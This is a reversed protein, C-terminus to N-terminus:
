RTGLVERYKTLVFWDREQARRSELIARLSDDLVTGCAAVAQIRVFNDPHAVSAMFEVRCRDKVDIDAQTTDLKAVLAGASRLAHGLAVPKLKPMAALVPELSPRGIAVLAAEAASRVTFYRDGLTRVLDPIAVPNKLKGCAEATVIRSLELKDRLLYLIRPVVLSDGIDGLSYVGRRPSIRKAELAVFISEVADFGDKGLKGLFYAANNRALYRDDRLAQFLYPKVSDPWAKVLVQIAESELGDKTDMKDEYVYKLAKPGLKVLEKRAREVKKIVNGVRWMSATKFVSEVPATIISDISESSTDVDPEFSEVTAPRDYDLGSGYTGKTWFARETAVNRQSYKDTGALDVFLGMGGFGRAFNSSGQGLLSDQTVYCDNGDEDILFAASNTLGIGQGGSCCYYDDGSRDVLAGVSLDHGQGQAPGLRTMYSDCGKEDVLVGISLHIGAGQTYQAATYHDYGSGDWLMGISYWYSTGECFVEGNYFDNGSRDCLLAVGGGADPRRGIAFGHSFSRHEHPLLPEHLYKGGVTYVDNGAMDALTGSAWTSAFGQGYCWCRYNDNGSNDLLLATGFDSAGQAFFGADYMDTGAMDWLLGTGFMSAGQSYHSARYVDDGQCDILVGAGFLASGQSYLRDSYYADNGGLDIVTGFPESLFGVAGGARNMYRDNGGIDILICCDDHYVNDGAGGVIVRGFETQLDLMVGGDVGPATRAETEHPFPLPGATLLRRAEAAAMVVALGSMALAHRDLKRVYLCLTESKFERSTDYEKGFERHLKGTFSKEVSDDEDKWFDPGEGLLGDLEYPSLKEVAQKLHKDGVAYGGLLLSVARGLPRSLGDTGAMRTEAASEVERWLRVSDRSKIGCDLVRWGDLLKGAPLSELEVTRSATSETYAVVELPHDLLRDVVRLRFFSDVAWQKFFGLEDVRMGQADLGLKIASMSLSDIGVVAPLSEAAAVVALVLLVVMCKRYM